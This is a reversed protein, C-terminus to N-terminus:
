RAAESAGGLRRLLRFFSERGLGLLRAARAKNGKSERLARAVIARRAAELEVYYRGLPASM